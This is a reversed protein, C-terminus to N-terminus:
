AAREPRPRLAMERALEEVAADVDANAHTVTAKAPADLGLLKRRSESIMRLERVAALVPGSDPLPSGDVTVVRGDSVLMHNAELVAVVVQQAADLRELELAIYQERMAASDQRYEEFESRLRREVTSKTLGTEAAIQRISRGRLRLDWCLRQEEAFHANTYRPPTWRTLQKGVTPATRPPRKRPPM